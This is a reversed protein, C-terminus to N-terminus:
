LWGLWWLAVAGAALVASLGPGLLAIVFRVVGSVASALLHVCAVVFNAIASGLM